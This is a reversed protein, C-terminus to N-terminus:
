PRVPPEDPPALGAAGGAARAAGRVPLEVEGIVAVAGFLFLAQNKALLLSSYGIITTLSCLAVAGGTSLVVREVSARRIPAAARRAPRRAREQRFRAMINVAYDVGIGFTIPFAAFNAYNIKIGLLFTAGVMWVIGVLLSAIVVM